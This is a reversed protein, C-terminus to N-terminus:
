MEVSCLFGSISCDRASIEDLTKAVPGDSPWGPPCKVQSHRYSCPRVPLDLVGETASPAPALPANHTYAHHEKRM